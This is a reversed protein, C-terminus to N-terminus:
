AEGLEASLPFVWDPLTHSDMGPWHIHAHYTILLSAHQHDGWHM